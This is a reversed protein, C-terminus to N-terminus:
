DEGHTLNWNYVVKNKEYTSPTYVTLRNRKPHMVYSKDDTIHGLGLAHGLEHTAVSQKVRNNRMDDSGDQPNEWDMNLYIIFASTTHCSCQSTTSSYPYYYGYSDLHDSLSSVQTFYKNMIMSSSTTTNDEIYRPSINTNWSDIADSVTEYYDGTAKNQVYITELYYGDNYPLMYVASAPIVMCSILVFSFVVILIKRKM